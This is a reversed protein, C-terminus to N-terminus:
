PVSYFCTTYRRVCEDALRPTTCFFDGWWPDGAQPNKGTGNVNVTRLCTPQSGGINQQSYVAPGSAPKSFHSLRGSREAVDCLRQSRGDTGNVAREM